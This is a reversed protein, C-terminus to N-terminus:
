AANNRLDHCHRCICVPVPVPRSIILRVVHGTIDWRRSPIVDWVVGDDGDFCGQWKIWHRIVYTRM